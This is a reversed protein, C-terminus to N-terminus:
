LFLSFFEKRAVKSRRTNGVQSFYDCTHDGVNREFRLTSTEEVGLIDTLFRTDIGMVGQHLSQYGTINLCVSSEKCGFPKGLGM